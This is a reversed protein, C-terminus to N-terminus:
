MVCSSKISDERNRAAKHDGAPFPSVDQNEQTHYKKTNKDCEWITDLTLHSVQNYQNRIEAKMKNLLWMPWSSMIIVHCLLVKSDGCPVLPSTEQFKTLLLKELDQIIYMSIPCCQHASQDEYKNQM